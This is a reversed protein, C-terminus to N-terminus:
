KRNLDSIKNYLEEAESTKGEKYLNEAKSLMEELNMEQKEKEGPMIMYKRLKCLTKQEDRSLLLKEYQLSTVLIAKAPDINDKNIIYSIEKKTVNEKQEAIAKDTDTVEEATKEEPEEALNEEKEEESPAEEKIVETSNEEETKEERDEVLNEEESPKEEKIVETSIEEENNEQPEEIPTEEVEEASPEEQDTNESIVEETPEDGEENLDEEAELDVETIDDEEKGDINILDDIAKDSIEITDDEEDIDEDVEASAEDNQVDEEPTLDDQNVTEEDELPINDVQIDTNNLSVEEDIGEFDKDIEIIEGYFSDSLDIINKLRNNLEEKIKIKRPDNDKKIEEDLDLIKVNLLSTIDFLSSKISSVSGVLKYDKIEYNDM